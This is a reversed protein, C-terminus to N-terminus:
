DTKEKLDTSDHLLSYRQPFRWDEVAQTIMGVFCLVIFGIMCSGMLVHGLGYLPGVIGSLMKGITHTELREIAYKMLAVYFIAGVILVQRRYIQRLFGKVTLRPRSYAGMTDLAVQMFTVTVGVLIALSVLQGAIDNM